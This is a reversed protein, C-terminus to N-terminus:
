DFGLIRQGEKYHHRIHPFRTEGIEYLRDRVLGILGLTEKPDVPLPSLEYDVDVSLVPDGDHDLAPRVHVERAGYKGMVELVTDRIIREVRPDLREDVLEM